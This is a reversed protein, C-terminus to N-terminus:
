MIQPHEGQPKFEVSKRGESMKEGKHVSLKAGGDLSDLAVIAVLKIVGAGASEKKGMTNM